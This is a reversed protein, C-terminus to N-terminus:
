SKATHKLLSNNLKKYTDSYPLPYQDVKQINLRNTKQNYARDLEKTRITLAETHIIEKETRHIITKKKHIFTKLYIEKRTKSYVLKTVLIM